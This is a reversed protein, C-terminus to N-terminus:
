LAVVKTSVLGGVSVSAGQGAIILSAARATAAAVSMPVAAAVGDAEIAIAALVTTLSVGRRGLRDKRLKRARSLRVSIRAETVGLQCAAKACSQNELCCVLFPLRLKEPLRAIEENLLVQVEQWAAMISPDPPQPPTVRSEHGRRRAVSRKTNKAMRY